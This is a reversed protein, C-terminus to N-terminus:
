SFRRGSLDPVSKTRLQLVDNRLRPPTGPRRAVSRRSRRLTAPPVRRSGSRTAPPGSTSWLWRLFRFIRSLGSGRRWQPARRVAGAPRSRWAAPCGATMAPSGSPWKMTPSGPFRQCGHHRQCSGPRVGQQGGESAPGKWPCGDATTEPASMSRQGPLVVGSVRCPETWPSADGGGVRTGPHHPAPTPRRRLHRNGQLLLPPRSRNGHQRQWPVAGILLGNVVALFAVAM